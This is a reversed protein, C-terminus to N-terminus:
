DPGLRRDLDAVTHAAVEIRAVLVADLTEIRAVAAGREGLHAAVLQAYVGSANIVALGSVLAVLVLRWVWATARWQRVLWGAAVLKASEMACAMGVVSPPSGPFLAVMGRISFWAAAGALAIAAVASLSSDSIDKSPGCGSHARSRTPVAATSPVVSWLCPKLCRGAQIASATSV